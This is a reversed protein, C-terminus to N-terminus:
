MKDIVIGSSHSENELPNAIWRTVMHSANYNRDHWRQEKRHKSLKRANNAM